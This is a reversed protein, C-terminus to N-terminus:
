GLSLALKVFQGLPKSDLSPLMTSSVEPLVSQFQKAPEPFVPPKEVLTLLGAPQATVDPAVRCVRPVRGREDKM